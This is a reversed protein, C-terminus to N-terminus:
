LKEESYYITRVETKSNGSPDFATITLTNLGGTLDIVKSFEGKNNAQLGTGNDNVSIIVTSNPATKGSVSITNEFIVIDDDPNNIELNFSVPLTTVPGQLAWKTQAPNKQCCPLKGDNLILHMGGLFALGAIFIITHSILFQKASLQRNTM